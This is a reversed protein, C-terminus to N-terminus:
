HWGSSNLLWSQARSLSSTTGGDGGRRHGGGVTKDLAASLFLDGKPCVSISVVRRTHGTFYRLYRNDHVSHYLIRNDNSSPRPHFPPPPPTLLHSLSPPFM